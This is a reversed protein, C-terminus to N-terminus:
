GLGREQGSKAHKAFNTTNESNESSYDVWKSKREDVDSGLSM